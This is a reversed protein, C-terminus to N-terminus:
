SAQNTRSRRSSNQKPIFKFRPTSGPLVEIQNNRMALIALAARLYVQALGSKHDDDIFLHKLSYMIKSYAVFGDDLSSAKNIIGLLIEPLSEGSWVTDPTTPYLLAVVDKCFIVAEEAYNSLNQPKIALQKAIDSGTKLYTSMVAKATREGAPSLGPPIRGIKDIVDVLKNLSVMPYRVRVTWYSSETLDETKYEVKFREDGPGDDGRIRQYLRDAGPGERQLDSQWGIFRGKLALLSSGRQILAQGKRITDTRVIKFLPNGKEIQVTAIALIDPATSNADLVLLKYTSAEATGSPYYGKLLVVRVNVRPGSTPKTALALTKADERPDFINELVEFRNCDIRTGLVRLLDTQVDMTNMADFTLIDGRTWEAAFTKGISGLQVVASAEQIIAVRILDGGALDRREFLEDPSALTQTAFLSVISCQASISTIPSYTIARASDALLCPILFLAVIRPLFKSM